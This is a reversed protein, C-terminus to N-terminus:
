GALNPDTMTGGKRTNMVVAVVVVVVVWLRKCRWKDGAHVLESRLCYCRVFEADPYESRMYDPGALYIGPHCETGADTSLYPAVYPAERPEYRTCGVYQSKATRYGWIQDGRIELGSALIESDPIAPIPANPALCTDRLNAGSLNADGLNALSLNAGSLDADSLDADSLNSGSLNAGSLNADRLNALSLNAGSLDADSLNSGSLIADSLIADSLNSGILIADSLDARKGTVPDSLWSKHQDLVRALVNPNM